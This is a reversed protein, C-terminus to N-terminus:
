LTIQYALVREVTENIGMTRTYQPDISEVYMLLREQHPDAVLSSYGLLPHDPKEYPSLPKWPKRSICKLDGEQPYISYIVFESVSGGGHGVGYEDAYVVDPKRERSDSIQTELGVFVPGRDSGFISGSLFCLKDRGDVTLPGHKEFNIGDPSTALAPREQNSRNKAKYICYWTDDIIDVTSDRAQHADFDPGNPIVIGPSEWPGQLSDATLLVTEWQVGGWVFEEGTDCSVFLHWRHDDPNRLLQTGEISQIPIGSTESVDRKSISDLLEYGLGDESTYIKAAYGREQDRAIRPRATMVFRKGIDDYIAKGAGIWSGPQFDPPNLVVDLYERRRYLSDLADLELDQTM